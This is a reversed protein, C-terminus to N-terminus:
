YKRCCLCGKVYKDVVCSVLEAPLLVGTENVKPLRQRRETSYGPNYENALFYRPVSQVVTGHSCKNEIAPWM